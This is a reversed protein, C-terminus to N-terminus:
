VLGGGVVPLHLISPLPATAMSLLCTCCGLCLKSLFAFCDTTCSSGEHRSSDMGPFYSDHFLFFLPRWDMLLILSHLHLIKIDGSLLDIFVVLHLLHLPRHMTHPRLVQCPQSPRLRRILDPLVKPHKTALFRPLLRPVSPLLTMRM